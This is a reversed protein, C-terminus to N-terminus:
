IEEVEWLMCEQRYGCWSCQMGPAPHFRKEAIGDVAANLMAVARDKRGDEAPPVKVRVVQPVKTKVLFVLNLSPPTRGATAEILLQYSVLQLENEFAAQEPDPRAAASKFDVPALDSQVLDIAGSLPVPLGPIRESLYVEVGVPKAKLAEPSELYARVVRLGADLSKEREAGDAFGVPGEERELRWFADRYSQEVAEPSDHGGRWRALHFAQLAAHVAKGLHLGPAAPKKIELVREFYFKLSCSLYLRAATPSIHDPMTTDIDGTSARAPPAAIAPAIM